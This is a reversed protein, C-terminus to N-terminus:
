QAPAPMKWAKRFDGMSIGELDLSHQLDHLEVRRGHTACNLGSADLKTDEGCVDCCVLYATEERIFENTTAAMM